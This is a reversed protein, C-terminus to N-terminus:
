QKWTITRDSKEITIYLMDRGSKVPPPKYQMATSDYGWFEMRIGGEKRKLSLNIPLYDQYNRKLGEALAGLISIFPDHNSEYEMPTMNPLDIITNVKFPIEHLLEKLDDSLYEMFYVNSILLSDSDPDQNFVRLIDKEGFGNQTIDIIDIRDPKKEPILLESLIFGSLSSDLITVSPIWVQDVETQKIQQANLLNGFSYLYLSLVFLFVIKKM